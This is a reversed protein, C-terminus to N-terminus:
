RKTRGKVSDELAPNNKREEQISLVKKQGSPQVMLTLGDRSQVELRQGAVVPTSSVARWLEGRTRVFGRYREGESEFDEVAVVEAKLKQGVGSHPMARQAKIIRSVLFFTVGATAIAFPIIIRLSVRMFGVPSDVLMVGGIVMCIVGGITLFGYSTVFAEALFLALAIGILVLGVYSIPLVALGFFALILCVIGLIGAVGWGPTYLEFLIGYFGFLLLLFAVNPNSVVALIREGWWMEHQRLEAGATRIQIPGRVLNVQRGDIAGLLEQENGALLDVVGNNVAESASASLSETVARTVWDVDRGRLEALSRAWAVTDNVIKQEQPSQQRQKEGEETEPEPQPSGPLGGVSVPHAAGINTGPAMATLHGALTIFLGASAARAGSPAVYVVVPVNSQLISKVIERTSDVLGGPTDLVILLCQAQEQEARTIAKAIFQATVPTIAENDIRLQLVVPRSETQTQAPAELSQWIFIAVLALFITYFLGRM